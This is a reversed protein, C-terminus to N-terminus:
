YKRFQFKDKVNVKEVDQLFRNSKGSLNGLWYFFSYRRQRLREMEYFARM